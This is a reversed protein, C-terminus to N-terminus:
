EPAQLAAVRDKFVKYMLPTKETFWDCIAKRNNGQRPDLKTEFIIRSTKKGPLPLWQLDAGIEEEIAEKDEQLQAFAADKWGKPQVYLDIPVSQNRPTLLM